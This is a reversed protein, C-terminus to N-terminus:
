SSAVISVQVSSAGGGTTQATVLIAHSTGVLPLTVGTCGSLGGSFVVSQGATINGSPTPLVKPSCTALGTLTIGDYQVTITTGVLPTQGNNKITLSLFANSSAVTLSDQIVVIQNTSSIISTASFFVNYVLLGGAITIAILIITALIPSIARKRSFRM